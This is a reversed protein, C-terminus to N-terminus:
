ENNSTVCNLGEVLIRPYDIGFIKKLKPLISKLKRDKSDVQFLLFIASTSRTGNMYDLLKKRYYTKVNKPSAESNYTPKIEIMVKGIFGYSITLDPKHSNLLEPERIIDMKRLGRRLLANEIQVM